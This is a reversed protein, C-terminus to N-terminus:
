TTGLEGSLFRHAAVVYVRAGEVLEEIDIYEDKQHPIHRAGPGNVLCPIGKWAHLFTGDTAGPVGNYVPRRGTVDKYASAACGVIPEDKEIAVMPRDEIFEIEAYYDKDQKALDELIRQLRSRLEEHDQAPTTRIDVYGVAEAPMVNLQVPEGPPPAQVVTFTISPWGLYHDEGCRKKEATEFEEFALITKALRPNPNIGTLPM